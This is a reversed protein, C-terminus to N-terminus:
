TRNSANSSCRGCGPSCRCRLGATGPRRTRDHRRPLLDLVLTNLRFADKKRLLALLDPDSRMADFALWFFLEDAPTLSDPDADWGVKTETVKEATVWM